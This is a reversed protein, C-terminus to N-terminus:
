SDLSSNPVKASLIRLIALLVFSTIFSVTFTNPSTAAPFKLTDVFTSNIPTNLSISSEISFIVLSKLSVIDCILEADSSTPAADSWTDLPAWINAWPAVSCALATWSNDAVKVSIDSFIFFVASFAWCALLKVILAPCSTWFPLSCIFSITLAISSIENVEFSIPLIIFVISSM